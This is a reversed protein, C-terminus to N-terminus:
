HRIHCTWQRQWRSQLRLVKAGDPTFTITAPQPKVGDVQPLDISSIVTYTHVDIISISASSLNTVWLTNADPPTNVGSPFKGVPISTLFRKPCAGLVIVRNHGGDALFVRTDDIKPDCAPAVGNIGSSTISPFFALRRPTANFILPSGPISGPILSAANVILGPAIM